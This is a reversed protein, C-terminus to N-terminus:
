HTLVLKGKEEELNISQKQWGYSNSANCVYDHLNESKVNNIKLRAVRDGIEFEGQYKVDKRSTKVDIRM